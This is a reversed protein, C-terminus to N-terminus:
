RKSEMKRKAGAFAAPKALSAPFTPQCNPREGALAPSMRDPETYLHPALGGWPNIIRDKTTHGPTARPRGWSLWRTYEFYQLDVKLVHFGM